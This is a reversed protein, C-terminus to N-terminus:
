PTQTLCWDTGNTNPPRRPNPNSTNEVFYQWSTKWPKGTQRILTASLQFANKRLLSNFHNIKMTETMDPQMKIM